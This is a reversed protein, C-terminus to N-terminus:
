LFRLINYEKDLVIRDCKNYLAFISKINSEKFIVYIKKLLPYRLSNEKTM